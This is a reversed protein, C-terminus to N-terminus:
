DRTPGLPILADLDALTEPSLVVDAAEANSRAHRPSRTGALTASVGSQQLNWALALQAISCGVREAISRMGNVVAESREFRGPSYLRQWFPWERYDPLDKAFDDPSTIAGTLMGSGLPEYTVVGIGQTQAWRALELTELHDLLSLGEQLVDVSGVSLCREVEPREFNSLGVLRTLGDDVLARMAGWSEELGDNSEGPYHMLYMDLRDVGLRELSGECAERIQKPEFGTGDPLPAIKSSLKMPQGVDRLAAAIVVENKRDSYQEATDIWDIGAEIAALLVDRAGPWDPDDEFEFGGLGVVSFWEGGIEVSRM